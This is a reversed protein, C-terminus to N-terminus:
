FEKVAATLLKLVKACMSPKQLKSWCNVEFYLGHLRSVKFHLGLQKDVAVHAVLLILTLADLIRPYKLGGMKM